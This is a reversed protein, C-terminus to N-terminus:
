AREGPTRPPIPTPRRDEGINVYVVEADTVRVVTGPDRWREADVSVKVTISTRGVKVVRAYFSVVDGVYVPHHFVVENMKVTVVLDCYPRTAIAGAQDIYALLVGGFITGHGNTDRPLMSVRIAPERTNADVPPRYERALIPRM